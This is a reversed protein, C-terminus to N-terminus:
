TTAWLRRTCVVFSQDDNLSVQTSSLACLRVDMLAPRADGDKQSIARRELDLLEPITLQAYEEREEDTVDSLTRVHAGFAHHCGSCLM